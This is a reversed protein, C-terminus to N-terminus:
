KLVLNALYYYLPIGILINFPFTIGISLPVYIAEKAQPLAIRMAAPVAIYSASAALICILTATGTDLKFLYSIWLGFSAGILPMYLGFLHVPWSLLRFQDRHNGVKLGMDFLFLCLAPKFPTLIELAARKFGIGYLATGVIMGGIITLIAKNLFSEKLIEGIKSNQISSPIFKKALFLGSIIAPIEMVALIAIIYQEYSVKLQDLFAISTILTMVSVSGFSAAVAAATMLDLRTFRKLIYFSLFPQVLGWAILAALVPFFTYASSQIHEALPGGGKLGVCFLIYLTLIKILNKPKSFKTKFITLIIGFLFCFLPLNLVNKFFLNNFEM